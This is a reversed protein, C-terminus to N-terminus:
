SYTITKGSNAPIADLRAKVAKEVAARVTALATTYTAEQANLESSTLPYINAGARNSEADILTLIGDLDDNSSLNLSVELSSVKFLRAASDIGDADEFIAITDTTSLSM